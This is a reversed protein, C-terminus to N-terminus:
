EDGPPLHVAFECADDGTLFSKVLEIRVPRGTIGEWLRRFWGGGCYCFTPSLPIGSRIAEKVIPCCCSRFCKDTQDAAAEYGERDYPLKREYIVNGERRQIGYYSYGGVSRDAAMYELLRDLDHHKEYEARLREIREHPFVHACGMMIDRRACEDKVLADLHEIACRAWEARERSTSDLSMTECGEMIKKRVTRGAYRDIGAALRELWRGMLLPIELETLYRRSSAEGRGSAGELVEVCVERDPGEALGVLNRSVFDYMAGWAPVRTKPVGCLGGPDRSTACLMPGGELVRCGPNRGNLPKVVPICVEIDASEDAHVAHYVIVPLGGAHCGVDERLRDLREPIEGFAGHYRMSAVLVDPVRKESLAIAEGPM